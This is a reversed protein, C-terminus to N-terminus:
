SKIREDKKMIEKIASIITSFVDEKPSSANIKISRAPYNSLYRKYNLAAQNLKEEREYSDITNRRSIRDLSNEVDNDLYILLDPLPFESNLLEVFDWDAESACHYAFSSPIYRTCIVSIGRNFTPIIGEKDNYLHDHRDAAFMLAMQRDFLKPDDQFSVRRKLALRITSGILGTSPEATNEVPLALERFYSELLHAQTTTGSGDLGELVIFIPKM